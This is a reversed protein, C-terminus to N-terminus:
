KEQMAEDPLLVPIDDEIRYFYKGDKSILGSSLPTAVPENIQTMIVGANIKQNIEQLQKDNMLELPVRSIPCILSSYFLTKPDIDKKQM